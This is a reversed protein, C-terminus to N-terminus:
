PPISNYLSELQEEHFKIKDELDKQEILFSTKLRAFHKYDELQAASLYKALIGTVVQERRDLNDKLDKADEKQRSLLSHRDKLSQMEDADTNEDIKSLANEVRALRMSLCFLLSVVKELDGIFMMYREYENPKCVEKVVAELNTGHTTNETIESLLLERQTYIEELLLNISFILEIKKSTNDDLCGRDPKQSNRKELLLTIKSHLKSMVGSNVKDQNLGKNRCMERTSIDVPFLSKMLSIASERVPLPKLVDVLSKDKSIIEKVLEVHREETSSKLDEKAPDGQKEISTEMEQRFAEDSENHKAHGFLSSTIQTGNVQSDPVHDIEEHWSISMSQAESSKLEESVAGFDENEARPVPLESVASRECLDNTEASVEKDNEPIDKEIPDLSPTHVSVVRQELHPHVPFTNCSQLAEEANSLSKINNEQQMFNMKCADEMSISQSFVENDTQLSHPQEAARTHSQSLHSFSSNDTNSFLASARQSRSHREQASKAVDLRHPGLFDEKSTQRPEKGSENETNAKLKDHHVVATSNKNDLRTGTIHYLQDTSQSLVSLRIKDSTGIEEMSKGRGRAPCEKETESTASDMTAPLRSNCVNYNSSLASTSSTLYGVPVQPHNMSRKQCVSTSSDESYCKSNGLTCQDLHTKYKGNVTKDVSLSSDGLHSSKLFRDNWTVTADYSSSTGASRRHHYTQTANNCLTENPMGKWEAFSQIGSTNQMQSQHISTPRQNAKREMYEVLADHQIQKLETKSLNSSSLTREKDLLKMRYHDDLKNQSLEENNWKFGTNVGLHDLKEPESYCLKRQEKSLRKRGGIRSVTSKESVEKKCSKDDLVKPQVCKAEENSGSLSYSRIHDISPRKPPNLKLRVPLSMQLDKRKFSTERLVKKQAVKLKERYDHMFSEEASSTLSGPTESDSYDDVTKELQSHSKTKHLPKNPEEAKPISFHSTRQFTKPENNAGVEKTQNSSNLLSNNRGGALHYLMPTSAKTIKDSILECFNSSQPIAQEQQHSLLPIPKITADKRLNHSKPVEHLGDYDMAKSSPEYFDESLRSYITQSTRTHPRKYKIDWQGLNDCETDKIKQALSPYQEKHQQNLALVEVEESKTGEYDYCNTEKDPKWSDSEIEHVRPRDSVFEHLTHGTSKTTASENLCSDTFSKFHDKKNREERKLSVQKGTQLDIQKFRDKKLNNMQSLDNNEDCIYGIEHITTANEALPLFSSSSFHPSDHRELDCPTVCSQNWGEHLSHRGLTPSHGQGYQRSLKYNRLSHNTSSTPSRKTKQSFNDETGSNIVSQDLHQFTTYNDLRTLPSPSEDYSVQSVTKLNTIKGSLDDKFSGDECYLNQQFHSHDIPSPNYIAKVYESDMYSVQEENLHCSGQQFASQYDAVYSNGSFSSYASDVIAAMAKVPSSRSLINDSILQHRIDSNGGTSSISWREIANGLSSM